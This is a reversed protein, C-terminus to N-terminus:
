GNGEGRQLINRIDAQMQVINAQQIQVIELLGSIASTNGAIAETNSAIFERLAAIEAERAAREEAIANRLQHIEITNEAQQRSTRILIAEIERLRDRDSENNYTM